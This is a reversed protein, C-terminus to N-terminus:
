SALTSTPEYHKGTNIALRERKEEGHKRHKLKTQMQKSTGRALKRRITFDWVESKPNM